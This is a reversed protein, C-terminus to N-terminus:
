VLVRLKNVESAQPSCFRGVTEIAEEMKESLPLFINKRKWIESVHPSSLARM